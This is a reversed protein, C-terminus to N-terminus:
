FRWGFSTSFQFTNRTGASSSITQTGFPVSSSGLFLLTDGADFRIITRRSPFLEVGGGLDLAPHTKNETAFVLTNPDLSSVARTFIQFGPRVRVFYGLKEHRVGSKVGLLTQVSRGGEFPSVHNESRVFFTVAAEVSLFPLLSYTARGGIGPQTTVDSTATSERSQSSFLGAVEWKEDTNSINEEEARTQLEGLRYSFGTSFQFAPRLSGAAIVAGGTGVSVTHSYIQLLDVGADTRWIWRPTLYYEFVAGVDTTFHTVRRNEITTASIQVPVNGFSVLGADTKGFIAYKKHRIAAAKLGSLWSVTRGGDQASQPKYDSPYFNFETEVAFSPTLNWSFRGGFGAETPTSAFRNMTLTSFQAGVEAKSQESQASAFAPFLTVAILACWSVAKGPQSFNNGLFGGSLVADTYACASTLLLSHELRM